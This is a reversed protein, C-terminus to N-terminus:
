GLLSLRQDPNAISLGVLLASGIMWWLEDRSAKGQGFVDWRGIEPLGAVGASHGVIALLLSIGFATRWRQVGDLFGGLNVLHDLRSRTSASQPRNSESM